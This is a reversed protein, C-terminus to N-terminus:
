VLYPSVIEVSRALWGMADFKERLSKDIHLENILEIPPKKIRDLREIAHDDIFRKVMMELAKM